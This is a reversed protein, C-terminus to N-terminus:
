VAINTQMIIVRFLAAPTNCILLMMTSPDTLTGLNFGSVQQPARDAQSLNDFLGFVKVHDGVLPGSLVPLLIMTDMLTHILISRETIDTM